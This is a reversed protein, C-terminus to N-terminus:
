SIKELPPQDLMPGEFGDDFRGRLSCSLCLYREGIRSMYSIFRANAGCNPCWTFEPREREGDLRFQKESNNV